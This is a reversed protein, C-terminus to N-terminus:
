SAGGTEQHSVILDQRKVVWCGVAVVALALLLLFLVSVYFPFHIGLSGIRQDLAEMGSTHWALVLHAVPNFRLLMGNRAMHPSEATLPLVDKWLLLFLVCALQAGAVIQFAAGSGLKVAVINVGLTTLFLWLSHTLLYSGFLLASPADFVLQRTFVGVATAALTTALLFCVVYGYLLASQKLFWRTRHNCRSFFYASASCFRRFLFSGFYIQFLLFPLLRLSLDVLSSLEFEMHGFGLQLLIDSFLLRGPISLFYPSQLVGCLVALGICKWLRNM